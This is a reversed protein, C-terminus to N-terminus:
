SVQKFENKLPQKKSTLNILGPVDLIIAVEGSGLITAGGICRVHDFLKGLSKIVTQYEGLLEDVVLGVKEHGFQVVVVAERESSLEKAGM